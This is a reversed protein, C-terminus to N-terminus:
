EVRFLVVKHCEQRKVNECQHKITILEHLEFVLSLRLTQTFIYCRQDSSSTRLLLHLSRRVCLVVAGGVLVVNVDVNEFVGSCFVFKVQQNVKM